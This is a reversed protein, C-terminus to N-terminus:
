MASYTDTDQPIALADPPMALETFRSCQRASILKTGRMVVLGSAAAAGSRGNGESDYVIYSYEGNSFRLQYEMGAFHQTMQHINGSAPVGVISMEVKNATGYRYVLRGNETTVSVQKAGISCAFAKASTADAAAALSSGFPILVALGLTVLLKM